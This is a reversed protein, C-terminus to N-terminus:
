RGAPIATGDNHDVIFSVPEDPPPISFIRLWVYRGMFLGQIAIEPGDLDGNYRTPSKWAVQEAPNFFSLLRGLDLHFGSVFKSGDHEGGRLENPTPFVVITWVEANPSTLNGPEWFRYGLPGIFGLPTILEKITDVLAVIWSPSEVTHITIAPM